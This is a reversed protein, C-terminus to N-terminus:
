RSADVAEKLRAKWNKLGVLSEYQNMSHYNWLEPLAKDLFIALSDCLELLDPKEQITAISAAKPLKVLQSIVDQPLGAKELRRIIEDQTLGNSELREVESKLKDLDESEM